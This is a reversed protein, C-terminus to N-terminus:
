LSSITENIAAELKDPNERAYMFAKNTLDKKNEGKVFLLTQGSVKLQEALAANIDDDLDVSVFSISNDKIQEPYNKKLTEETVKEVALCTECRRSFHFYYVEINESVSKQAQVASNNQAQVPAFAFLFIVPILFTLKKM